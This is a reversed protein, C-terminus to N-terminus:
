NLGWMGLVMILILIDAIYYCPLFSLILENVCVSVNLIYM